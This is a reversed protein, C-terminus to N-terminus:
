CLISLTVKFNSIWWLSREQGYDIWGQRCFMCFIRHSLWRLYLLFELLQHLFFHFCARYSLAGLFTLDFFCPNLVKSCFNWINWTNWNKRHLKREPANQWLSMNVYKFWCLIRLTKIGWIPFVDRAPWTCITCPATGNWLLVEGQKRGHVTYSQLSEWRLYINRWSFGHIFLQTLHSQRRIENWLKNWSFQIREWWEALSVLLSSTNKSWCLSTTM